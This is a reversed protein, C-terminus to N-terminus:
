TPEQISDGHTADNAGSGDCTLSSVQSALLRYNSDTFVAGAASLYEEWFRKVAVGESTTDDAGVVIVCVRALDPITGSAAQDAVWGAPPMNRLHAMEVGNASQLMDSLLVLTAPLAGADRVYESATHLTSFIDTHAIKGVLTSDFLLPVLSRMTERTSDLNDSDRSSVFTPDELAPVSDVFRKMDGKVGARNMEMLVVRDGFSLQNVLADVLDRSEELSQPTQSGSLDVAIVLLRAPRMDLPERPTCASSISSVLSAAALARWLRKNM